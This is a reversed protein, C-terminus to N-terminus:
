VGRLFDETREFLNKPTQELLEIKEDLYDFSANSNLAAAAAVAEFNMMNTPSLITGSAM